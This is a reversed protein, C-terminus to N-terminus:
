WRATRRGRARGGGVTLAFTREGARFDPLRLLQDPSVFGALGLSAPGFLRLAGRTGIVVEARPRRRASRRAARAARPRPIGARSARRPSAGACPTSSGSSRGLRVAVAPPGRLASVHGAAAHTTGCLRCILTAAARSYALRWRASPVACSRAASTAPWRRRGAPEGRAARAPRRGADRPHRAGAAADAARPAPHRAHRHHDGGAVARAGAAGDRAGGRDTARWWLEVSPTAATLLSAGPARARARELVVDRSHLARRAPRSTRPRTSTSWPWCRRAAAAPRAAGLAHGVALAPERGDGLARGRRPGRTRTARGLRTAGRPGLRALRQAWRAAAEVDPVIVLASRRTPGRARAAPARTRRRDPARRRAPDREAAGHARARRVSPATRRARRGAAAAARRVDLRGVLAVRARDLAGLDLEARALLPRPARGLRAAGQPRSEDGDRM